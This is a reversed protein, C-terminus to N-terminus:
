EWYPENWIEKGEPIDRVGRGESVKYDQEESDPRFFNM